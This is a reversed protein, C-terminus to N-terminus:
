ADKYKSIFCPESCEMRDIDFVHIDNWLCHMTGPKAMYPLKVQMHVSGKNHHAKNLMGENYIMRKKELAGM